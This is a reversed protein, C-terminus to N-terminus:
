VRAYYIVHSNPSNNRYYNNDNDIIFKIERISTSREYIYVHVVPFTYCIKCTFDEEAPTWKRASFIARVLSHCVSRVNHMWMYQGFKTNFTGKQLTRLKLTFRPGLEQLGVRLSDRFIYRIFPVLSTMARASM